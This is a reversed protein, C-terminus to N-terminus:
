KWASRHLHYPKSGSHCGSSNLGGSHSWLWGIIIIILVLLHKMLNKTEFSNLGSINKGVNYGMAKGARM